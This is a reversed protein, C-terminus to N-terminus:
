PQLSTPDIALRKHYLLHYLAFSETVVIANGATPASLLLPFSVLPLLFCAIQVGRLYHVAHRIGVAQVFTHSRNEDRQVDRIQHRIAGNCGIGFLWVLLVGFILSQATGTLLGFVLFPAVWQNVSSSIVSLGGRHKLRPPFSYTPHLGTLGLMVAKPQWPCPTILILLIQLGMLSGAFVAAVPQPLQHIARSDGAARDHEWDALDNIVYGTIMQGLLFLISYFLMTENPSQQHALILTLVATFFGPFKSIWAETRLASLLIRLTQIMSIAEQTFTEVGAAIAASTV